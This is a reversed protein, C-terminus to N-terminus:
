KIQSHRTENAVHPIKRADNQIKWPLARVRTTSCPNLQGTAQPIKTIWDPISGLDGANSPPNKVVSWWPLGEWKYKM